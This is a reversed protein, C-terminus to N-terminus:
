RDYIADRDFKEGGLDWGKELMAMSRAHAAEQAPTLVRQGSPAVPAIRAVPKGHRTVVFDRGQEVERPLRFFHRNAERASVTDSM